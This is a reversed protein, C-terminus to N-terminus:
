LVEFATIRDFYAVSYPEIEVWMYIYKPCAMGVDGKMKLSRKKNSQATNLLSVWPHSGMNNGKYLFRQTVEFPTCLFLCSLYSHTVPM